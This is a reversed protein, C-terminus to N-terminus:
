LIHSLCHMVSGLCNHRRVTLASGQLTALHLACLGAGNVADIYRAGQRLLSLSLHCSLM